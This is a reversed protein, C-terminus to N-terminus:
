RALRHRSDADGPRSVQKDGGVPQADARSCCRHQHQQPQERRHPEQEHEEVVQLGCPYTQLSHHADDLGAVVFRGDGLPVLAPRRRDVHILHAKAILVPGIHQMRHTQVNRGSVGHHEDPLRPCALRGQRGKDRPQQFGPLSADGHCRAMGPRHKDALFDM